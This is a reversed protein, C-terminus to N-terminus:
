RGREKGHMRQLDIGNKRKRCVLLAIAGVGFFLLGLCPIVLLALDTGKSGIAQPDDKDYYIEIEEGIEWSSSYMNVAKTYSRGYVEYTLHTKHHTRWEGGSLEKYEEFDLIIATTEVVDDYNFAKACIVTGAVLLILGFVAIILFLTQKKVM